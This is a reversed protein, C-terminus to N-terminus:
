ILADRTKAMDGLTHTDAATAQSCISALIDRARFPLLSLLTDSVGHSSECQGQLYLRCKMTPITCVRYDRAVLIDGSPSRAVHPLLAEFMTEDLCRRYGTALILADCRLTTIENSNRDRVVLELDGNRKCASAVRSRRIIRLRHVGAVEDLYLLRYLACLLGEDVVGYNTNQLEDLIEERAAEPALYFHDVEESLFAENVFPTSDSSRLAYQSIILHITACPYNRLIYDVIEAASQGDGVVSFRYAGHHDPFRAPFRELFQSSHVIEKCAGDQVDLLNPKGGPACIVSKALHTHTLETDALKVDVRFVDLVEPDGVTSVPTVRVVTAGYHVHQRFAHAVWTLYDEYEVRSPCFDRLNVFRELRGKSHLYNLFSYPSTPNRLTVLDKLFSIQMRAGDLMMEPHWAFSTKSEFFIGQPSPTREGAAVAISLNSPGFGIGVFDWVKTYRSSLVRGATEPM